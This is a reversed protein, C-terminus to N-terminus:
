LAAIDFSQLVQPSEVLVAAPLVSNMRSTDFFHFESTDSFLGSALSLCIILTRWELSYWGEASQTAYLVQQRM